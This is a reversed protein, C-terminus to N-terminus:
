VCCAPSLAECADCSGKMLEVVRIEMEMEMEMELGHGAM